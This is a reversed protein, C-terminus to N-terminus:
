EISKPYCLVVPFHSEAKLFHLPISPSEFLDGVVSLAATLASLLVLLVSSGPAMGLMAAVLGGYATRGQMWDDPVCLRKEATTNQAKDLLTAFATDPM